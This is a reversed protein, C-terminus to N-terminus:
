CGDELGRAVEAWLEITDRMPRSPTLQTGPSASVHEAQDVRANAVAPPSPPQNRSAKDAVAEAYTRRQAPVRMATPRARFAARAFRSSIM